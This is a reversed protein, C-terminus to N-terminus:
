QLVLPALRSEAFKRNPIMKPEIDIAHMQNVLECLREINPTMKVLTDRWMAAIQPNALKSQRLATAYDLLPQLLIDAYDGLHPNKLLEIDGEKLALGSMAIHDRSYRRETERMFELAKPSLAYM